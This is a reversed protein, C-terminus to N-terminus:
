RNRVSWVDLFRSRANGTMQSEPAETHTVGFRSSKTPGRPGGGFEDVWPTPPGTATFPEPRIEQVNLVGSLENRVIM